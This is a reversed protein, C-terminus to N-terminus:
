AVNHVRRENLWYALILASLFWFWPYWYNSIIFFHMVASLFSVLFFFQPGGSIKLIKRFIALLFLCFTALGILGTELLLSPYLSIVSDIALDKYAGPGYGILINVVDANVFVEYFEELRMVREYASGNDTSLKTMVQNALDSFTILELFYSLSLLIVFLTTIIFIFKYFHVGIKKRTLAFLLFSIFVALPAIVFSAASFTFILALSSLLLFLFFQAYKEKLILFYASLPAMIELFMATHGPESTLGYARFFGLSIANRSSTSPWPILGNLSLAFANKLVFEVIIFIVVIYTAIYIYSLLVYFSDNALFSTLAWKVFLYFYCITTFYALLHGVKVTDSQFIFIKNIKFLFFVLFLFFLVIIDEYNLRFIVRRCFAEKISFLILYILYVPLAPLFAFASSFPLLLVYYKM